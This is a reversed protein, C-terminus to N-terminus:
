KEHRLGGYFRVIKDEMDEVIGCYIRCRRFETFYEQVSMNGQELCWLKKHLDHKYSAPIFRDHMAEKVRDWTTSAIALERWWIKAFDKFEITVHEVRRIEHVLHSNILLTNPERSPITGSSRFKYGLRKTGLMPEVWGDDLREVLLCFDHVVENEDFGDSLCMRSGLTWEVGSVLYLWLM